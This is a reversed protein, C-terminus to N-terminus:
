RSPAAPRTRITPAAMEPPLFADVRRYTSDLFRLAGTLIVGSGIAWFVVAALVLGALYAIRDPMVWDLRAASILTVRRFLRGIM